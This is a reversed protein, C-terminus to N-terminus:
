VFFSNSGDDEADAAGSGGEGNSSGAANPGVGASAADAASSSGGQATEMRSVVEFGGLSDTGYDADTPTDTDEDITDAVEYKSNSEAASAAPSTNDEEAATAAAAEDGTLTALLASSAASQVISKTEAEAIITGGATGLAMALDEDNIVSGPNQGKEGILELLRAVTDQPLFLSLFFCHTFTLLSTCFWFSCFLACLQQQLNKRVKTAFLEAALIEERENNNDNGSSGTGTGTGTRNGYMSNADSEGDASNDATNAAALAMKHELAMRREREIRYAGEWQDEMTVLAPVDLDISLQSVSATSSSLLQQQM